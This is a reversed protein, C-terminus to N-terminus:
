PPWLGGPLHNGSYEGIVYAWALVVHGGAAEAPILVRRYLSPRGPDFGELRDLAPLREEPDDFDFLEGVVVTSGQHHVEKRELRRQESADRAPDATGIARIDENPVVLAPYGSPLDYLRGRVTAEEVRSYGRCFAEHNAHGRKLTGYSFLTLQAPIGSRSTRGKPPRRTHEPRSPKSL